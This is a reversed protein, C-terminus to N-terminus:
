QYGLNMLFSYAKKIQAPVELGAQAYRKKIYKWADRLAARNKCNTLRKSSWNELQYATLYETEMQGVRKSNCNVELRRCCGLLRFRSSGKAM